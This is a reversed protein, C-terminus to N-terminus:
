LFSYFNIQMVRHLATYKFMSLPRNDSIGACHVFGSVPGFGKVIPKIKAEIGEVDMLDMVCCVSSNQLESQVAHLQEEQRDILIISAGLSDLHKATARGIGSAAGTIVIIKGNFYNMGKGRM